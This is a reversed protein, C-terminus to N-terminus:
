GKKIRKQKFYDKIIKSCKDELIGSVIEPQHNVPVDSQYITTLALWRKEFAGFVVKKIRSNIIAGTCMVCPELTVYLTCEDLYWSELKECAENITIIEAHATSLNSTERLNHGRAIVENNRVIIAGVPVEDKALCKEAERYALEMFEIDQTM